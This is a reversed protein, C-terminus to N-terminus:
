RGNGEWFKSQEQLREEYTRKERLQLMNYEKRKRRKLSM